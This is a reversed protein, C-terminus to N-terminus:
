EMLKKFDLRSLLGAVEPDNKLAALKPHNIIQTQDQTKLIEQFSPDMFVSQIKPHSMFSKFNEDKMLKQMLQMQKMFGNMKDFM